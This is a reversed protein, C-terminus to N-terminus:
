RWSCVEVQAGTLFPASVSHTGSGDGAGAFSLPWVVVEFTQRAGPGLPAGQAKRPPIVHSSGTCEGGEQLLVVWMMMNSALLVGETFSATRSQILWLKQLKKPWSFKIEDSLLGCLERPWSRQHRRSEVRREWEDTFGTSGANLIYASTPGKEVERQQWWPGHWWRDGPNGRQKEEKSHILRAM